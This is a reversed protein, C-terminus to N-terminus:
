ELKLIQVNRTLYNGTEDTITLTYNGPAPSVAMHHFLQTSGLYIDDLYWYLTAQANRHVAKLIVKNREGSIGKPLLIKGSRDPYIIGMGTKRNSEICDPHYPPLSVYFANKQRFYYEEVPPLVFRIEKRMQSVSFCDSNVQYEMNPHLLVTRHFPCTRTRSGAIPMRLTDIQPCLRTAKHGSQRCVPMLEMDDYPPQFWGKAPLYKFIDFMLPAAAHLGTLAPRGEGSANGAWVGVLYSPTLGIAWADRNGFSTGTKWAIRRYSVFDAWMGEQDPRNVENMAQFMFYISSASLHFTSSMNHKKEPKQSFLYWPKHYDNLNYRSSNGPYNMLMRSLGTYVGALDWLSAEAGGLILSLGYHSPQKNLGSIGLDKLLSHFRAVSYENLMIVAPVNLSRSLARRAPVMGDFDRNYNQPHFNGFFVPVDKILTNPLIKGDSLMGAYLLPKLISGTSRYSTIIDVDKGDVDNQLPNVNGAYAVVKGTKCEVILAALNSINNANLENHHRQILEDLILQLQIELTSHLNKQKPHEKIARNLLHDALHPIPFPKAPLPEQKALECDDDSIHGQVALRDLLRNRKRLLLESNKGPYVLAPSNPLVALTAAEGWSLMSAKKGYYRWAAADLGVVNGGFPAHSAYLELIEAKSHRLELRTSLVIEILKEAYTRKKDKRSLRIVQMSLTSGGNVTRRAKINRVMAKYLSVPNFGPHYFFYRDEFTIICKEFKDPVDQVPPFRWQEDSAIRASLLSEDSALLVTCVPAKFLERPLCFWYVLFVPMLALLVLRFGRNPRNIGSSGGGM